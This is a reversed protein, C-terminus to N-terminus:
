CFTGISVIRKLTLLERDMSKLVSDSQQSSGGAIATLDDHNIYMGRPPTRKNRPLNFHRDIRGRTPGITPRPNGTKRFMVYELVRYFSGCLKSAVPLVSHKM